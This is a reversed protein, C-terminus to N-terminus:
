TTNNDNNSQILNIRVVDDSSVSAPVVGFGSSKLSARHGLHPSCSTGEEEKTHHCALGRQKKRRERAKSREQLGPETPM